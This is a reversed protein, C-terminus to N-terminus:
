NKIWGKRIPVALFFRYLFNMINLLTQGYYIWCIHAILCATISVLFSGLMDLPWHVGLYVRSWGIAIGSFLLTMGSWFRHWCLLGLAFTFIVTAHDSPYSSDQTHSLWQYGLGIAFPRPHPFLDGIIWSLLLAYLLATFAKLVAYRQATKSASPAWVWLAVILIPVVAIAYKALFFAIMRFGLPSAPTANIYLFLSQNLSEM